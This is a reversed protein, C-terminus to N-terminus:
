LENVRETYIKITNLIHQSSLHAQVTLIDINNQSFIDQVAPKNEESDNEFRYEKLRRNIEKENYKKSNMAVESEPM